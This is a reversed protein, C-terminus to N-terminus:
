TKSRLVSDPPMTRDQCPQTGTLRWRQAADFATSEPYINPNMVGAGYETKPWLVLNPSM